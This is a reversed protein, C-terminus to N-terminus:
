LSAKVPKGLDKLLRQQRLPLVLSIIPLDSPEGASIIGNIRKGAADICHDYM